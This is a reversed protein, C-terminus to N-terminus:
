FSVDDVKTEGTQPNVWVTIAIEYGFYVLKGLAEQTVGDINSFQEYCSDKDMHAYVRKKVWGDKVYDM